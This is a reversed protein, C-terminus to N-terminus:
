KKVKMEKNIWKYLPKLTKKYSYNEKIYESHNEQVYKHLEDNHCTDILVRSFDDINGCEFLNGFKGDNIIEKSVNINSSVITCGNALAEITVLGFSEFDSTLCFIKAKSYEEKLKKRDYIPGVFEISNKIRSNNKLFNEIYLKFDEEIPGIIKLKWNKIKPHAKKFGELLIDTRKQLSGVRGVFLITNERDCNVKENITDEYANSIYELNEFPFQDKLIDIAKKEQLGFLIRNRNYNSFIVKKFIFRKIRKKLSNGEINCVDNMDEDINKDMHIYILGKKNFFLYTPISVLTTKQTIHYLHLVDIKKSNKILFLICNIKSNFKKLPFYDQSLGKVDQNFYQYEKDTYTVISSEFNYYKKMSYPIMGVDKILHINEVRPFMTTFRIKKNNM